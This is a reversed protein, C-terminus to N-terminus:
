FQYALGLGFSSRNQKKDSTMGLAGNEFREIGAYTFASTNKALQYDLGLVFQSIRADSNKGTSDKNALAQGMQGKLAFRNIQWSASALWSFEATKNEKVGESYQALLGIRINPKANIGWTTRLSRLAHDKETLVGGDGAVNNDLAVAFDWHKAQYSLSTSIGDDLNKENSPLWNFKIALKEFLKGTSYQLSQKHRVEGAFLTSMDFHSDNFLDVKGQISKLPTDFTGAIIQGFQGQVGLYSNRMSFIPKSSDTPNVGLELQYIIDFGQEILQTGKLGIRSAHNEVKWARKEEDLTQINSASLAFKGYFAPSSLAASSLLLLQTATLIKIVASNQM